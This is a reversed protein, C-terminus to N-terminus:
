DQQQWERIAETASWASLGKGATKGVLHRGNNPSGPLTPPKSGSDLLGRIGLIFIRLVTSRSANSEGGINLPPLDLRGAVGVVLNYNLLPILDQAHNRGDLQLFHRSRIQKAPKVRVRFLVGEIPRLAKPCTGFDSNVRWTM